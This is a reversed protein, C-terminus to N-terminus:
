MLGYYIIRADIGLGLHDNFHILGWKLWWGEGILEIRLKISSIMIISVAMDDKIKDLWM